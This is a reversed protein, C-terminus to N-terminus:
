STSRAPYGPRLRMVHPGFAALPTRKVTLPAVILRDSVAQGLEASTSVTVSLTRRRGRGDRSPSVTSVFLKWGLM